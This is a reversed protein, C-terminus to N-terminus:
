GRDAEHFGCPVLIYSSLEHGKRACRAILPTGVTLLKFSADGTGKSPAKPHKPHLPYALAIVRAGAFLYDGAFNAMVSNRYPGAKNGHKHWEAEYVKQKVKNRIAWTRVMSDVGKAGGHVVTMGPNASHLQDLDAEVMRKTRISFIRTGTVVVILGSSKRKRGM